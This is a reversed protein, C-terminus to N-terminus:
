SFVKQPTPPVSTPEDRPLPVKAKTVHRSGKKMFKKHIGSSVSEDSSTSVVNSAM